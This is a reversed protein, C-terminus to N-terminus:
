DGGLEVFAWGKRTETIIPIVKIPAMDIQKRSILKEIETEDKDLSFTKKGEYYNAIEDAQLNMYGAYGDRVIKVEGKLKSYGNDLDIFTEGDHSQMRGTTIDDASLKHTHIANLVANGYSDLGHTWVPEGNNWGGRTYAYGASTYTSIFESEELLPKDHNYTKVSGDPQSVRTQYLGASNAQFANLDLLASERDTLKKDTEQKTKELVEQQRRTFPASAAYGDQTVTKGKGELSTVGNMTFTCDTVITKVANGNKDVFTICDLPYVYPMPKVEASFPVYSFGGIKEYLSDAVASFDQGILSNQEINIVYGEEGALYENESNAVRVGSITIENEKLDSNYREAPTLLIDTSEYWKLSLRGDWNIFCCTGTIEGIWSLLQRYTLNEDKPEEILYDKNTLEYVGGDLPVGCISCIRDLLVVASMPFSLLSMDVRKDFRVMRDLARLSITRLKRPTEDVTFYGLPVYCVPAKPLYLADWKKTCLRIFIEAGEFKFDDFRGDFNDLTLAAEAATVSGFGIKDGSTCYRNVSLGGSVIDRETLSIEGETGSVTIQVTQRYPKLFLDREEDTMPYAM